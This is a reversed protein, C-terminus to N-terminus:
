WLFSAVYLSFCFCFLCVSAYLLFFLSLSDRPNGTRRGPKVLWYMGNQQNNVKQNICKVQIEKVSRYEATSSQPCQRPEMSDGERGVPELLVTRAMQRCPQLFHSRSERSGDDESGRNKQLCWTAVHLPWLEARVERKTSRRGHRGTRALSEAAETLRGGWPVRQPHIHSLQKQGEAEPCPVTSATPKLGQSDM